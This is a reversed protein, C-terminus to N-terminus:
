SETPKDGGSSISGATVRTKVALSKTRTFNLSGGTVRTKVAITAQNNM